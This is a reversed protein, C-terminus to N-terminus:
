DVPRRSRGHRALEERTTFLTRFTRQEDALPTFYGARELEPLLRQTIVDLGEPYHTPWINFGDTLRSDFREAFEAVVDDVTGVVTWHGSTNTVFDVLEEVTFQEDVALSKFIEYRGQRRIIDDSAPIIAPDIVDTRGLGSLDAGGLLQAVRRRGAEFDSPERLRAALERAESRTEGIIPIVGTLVTPRTGDTRVDRARTRLDDFYDKAIRKSPQAAYVFEAVEAAFQRGLDSSGAAGVAPIGQPSRPVNLPGEVSFHEGVHNIPAVSDPRFYLGSEVDEIVADREWSTWLKRLVEAFEGARAYRDSPRPLVGGFNEEGTFSTVLNVGIRGGSLNDLSNVLRAVNYPESFTTSVTSILGIRKTHVALAALLTFPEFGRPVQRLGDLSLGDALLLGHVGARESERAVHLYHDFSQLYQRGRPVLKWANQQGTGLM